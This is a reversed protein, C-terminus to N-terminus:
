LLGGAEAMAAALDSVGRGTVTQKMQWPMPGATPRYEVGAAALRPLHSTELRRMFSDSAASGPERNAPATGWAVESFAALRPYTLYDVRRPSDLYETWVEAQMGLVRGVDGAPQGIQDLGGAVTEFTPPDPLQALLETGFAYVDETRRVYGIPVPEDDRDSARHDLYVYQEPALIVDYGAALAQGSPRLGRWSMAVADRPLDPGIAEDWVVARRGRGRLHAAMQALFWGHLRWVDATGDAADFGLDRARHVIDPNNQWMTTPVEDGGIHVFPSDFIDCVEDLVDCFFAVQEPGPDLVDESIGWTIRVQRPQKTTGLWPYAAIAAEVHGPLDIEPVVTVGRQRAFSVIERMDDQTYFGGHPTNDYGPMTTVDVGSYDDTDFNATARRWAGAKTLEPYHTSEFRWGQDDTLHLQVVNLHHMAALDIFRRVERPPMFHRSVDLHVGRWALEPADTIVGTPLSLCRGPLPAQRFADPGALQRLTQAAAFAGGLDAATVSINTPTIEARYGGSPQNRDVTFTVTSVNPLVVADLGFAHSIADVWWRGAPALSDDWCISLTDVITLL